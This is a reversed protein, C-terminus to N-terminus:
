ESKKEQAQDKYSKVVMESLFADPDIVASAPLHFEKQGTNKQVLKLGFQYDRFLQRAVQLVSRAQAGAKEVILAVADDELTVIVNHKDKFDRVFAEVEQRAKEVVLEQGLERFKELHTERNDILDADVILENVSTGPLEYKFDRLIQEGVTMLGRAGTKEEAAMESIRKIGEDKFIVDIGYAEFEREYQRLLSGESYKLIAELDPAQLHECVVRVPIRGIFEAEFGFDIYDQSTVHKFLENDMEPVKSEATFGIQSAASRKRVIKELGSFAGSVIFLIHRTNITEKSKKGQQMEMMAAMQGRMDNPNRLAVETEEMLKLLTTQVGRGSVDRGMGGGTSALKDIEDIYIIGYEALSVDGDAKAVLERVLDDVDGGVYGTESFKTADAKVFPVGVLEAIHKILYTKGVGTPGVVMVNQKQIELPQADDDQAKLSKVHNYHDCVAIALAKKADDQSIVFRDLHAKIDRPLYDFEFIDDKEAVETEFPDEEEQSSGAPTMGPFSFGTKSMKGFIGELSKRLEEHDPSKPDKKDDDSM